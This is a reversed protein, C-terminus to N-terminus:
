GKPSLLHSKKPKEFVKETLLVSDLNTGLIHCYAVASCPTEPEIGPDPLTNSPKKPNEFIERYYCPTQFQTWSIAIPEGGIVHSKYCLITFLPHVNYLPMIHRLTCRQRGRRPYFAHLQTHTMQKSLSFYMSQHNSERTPCLIVPSKESKRFYRLLLVSDNKM